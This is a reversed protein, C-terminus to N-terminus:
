DDKKTQGDDSKVPGTIFDGKTQPNEKNEADTQLRRFLLMLMACAAAGILCAMGWWGFYVFIFVAVACLAASIVSFIIRLILLTKIKMCIYYCARVCLIM